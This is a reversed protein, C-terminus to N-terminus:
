DVSVKVKKIYWEIQGAAKWEQEIEDWFKDKLRHLKPDFKTYFKVGYSM